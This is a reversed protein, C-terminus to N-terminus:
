KLYYFFEGNMLSGDFPLRSRTRSMAVLYTLLM